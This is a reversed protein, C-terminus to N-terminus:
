FDAKVRGIRVLLSDTRNSNFMIMDFDADISNGTISKIKMLSYNEYYATYVLDGQGTASTLTYDAKVFYIIGPENEGIGFTGPQNLNIIRFRLKRSSYQQGANENKIGTIYLTGQQRYAQLEDAAWQVSNIQCLMFGNASNSNGAPNSEDKKACSSLLIVVALLLIHKKM